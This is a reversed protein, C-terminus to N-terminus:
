NVGWIVRDLITGNNLCYGLWETLFRDLQERENPQVMKPNPYPYAGRIFDDSTEDTVEAMLLDHYLRITFRPLSLCDSIEETPHCQNIVLGTYKGIEKWSLSVRCQLGAYNVGFNVESGEGFRVRIKRILEYNLRCGAHHRNLDPVHKIKGSM